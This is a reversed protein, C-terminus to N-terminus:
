CSISSCQKRCNQYPSSVVLAHKNERSLGECSAYCQQKTAKCQNNSATSQAPAPSTSTGSCAGNECAKALIGVVGTLAEKVTVRNGRTRSPSSRRDLKFVDGKAVNYGGIGTRVEGDRVFMDACETPKTKFKRCLQNNQAYWRGSLRERNVRDLKFIAGDSRLYNISTRDDNYTTTNSYYSQIQANTAPEGCATLFLCASLFTLLSINKM